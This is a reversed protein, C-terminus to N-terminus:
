HTRPTAVVLLPFKKSITLGNAESVDLDEPKAGNPLVFHFKHVLKALALENISMAFTVGPCGRRGAGFPILEFHLGKFDINTTTQDNLFREPRFEEPNKWVSPDRAIAWANIIVRTNAAVDYGFVESDQTSERPVLLPIPVHLRLNEKIVAKLYHMKELDDETIEEKRGVVERMENQLREMIKPHRLLESMAWELSAYTTHTGAAFVDLVIVKIVDDEIPSTAANQRQFELLIDVFDVGEDENDCSMIDIKRGRMRHEEVVGELFQDFQKAVKEVRADLGSVRDIWSLCPVYDGFSSSGLLEVFENLLIKFKEREGGDGYKRGLAARCVVDNTLSVLVDSLNVVGSSSSSGLEMIKEVMKSTEEERVRRFSQVRRNNLLHLVSISRVQRWYEGYPAFAIDMSEYLLKDPIRLKPRNSFLLDQNKMIERAANASSVVLVPVHGFHLLMLEGYRNSLSQLSRHPYTGLQHLNGILPLKRPSPPHRSSSHFRRKHILYISFPIFSILAVILHVFGLPM